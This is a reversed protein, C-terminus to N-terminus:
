PEDLESEHALWRDYAEELQRWHSVEELALGELLGRVEPDDTSSALSAYLQFARQEQEIAVLLAQAPRADSGLEGVASPAALELGGPAPMTFVSLDGSRVRELKERHREEQVALAVLLERLDERLSRAALRRYMGAAAEEAQIARELIEEYGIAGM